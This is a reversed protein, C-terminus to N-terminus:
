AAPQRLQRSGCRIRRRYGAPPVHNWRKFFRSFYFKDAFHLRDAIQKLPLDTTLLLQCAEQNLRRNLYEKPSIGFHERFSRSFVNPAMAQARALDQVRLSADPRQDVLEFVHPFKVHFNHQRRIVAEFADFSHTFLQQLLGQVRWCERLSLPRHKWKGVYEKPNWCGLCLPTRWQWLLDIGAPWECRFVLWYHEYIDRCLAHVPVHAPFWYARNPRLILHSHNWKVEAGGGCVFHMHHFGDTRPTGATSWEAGVRAYRLFFMRFRIDAVLDLHSSQQQQSFVVPFPDGYDAPAVPLRPPILAVDTQTM